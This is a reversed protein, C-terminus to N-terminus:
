AGPDLGDRNEVGASAGGGPRDIPRAQGVGAQDHGTARRPQRRGDQRQHRWRLAGGIVPRAPIARGERSGLAKQMLADVANWDAQAGMREEIRARLYFHRMVQEMIDLSDFSAAFDIPPANKALEARAAAIKKVRERELNFAELVTVIAEVEDPTDV